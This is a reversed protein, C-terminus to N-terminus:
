SNGTIKKLEKLKKTGENKFCCQVKDRPITASASIVVSKKSGDMESALPAM